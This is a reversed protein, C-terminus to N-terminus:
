GSKQLASNGDADLEALAQDLAELRAAVTVRERLLRQRLADRRERLKAASSIVDLRIARINNREPGHALEPSRLPSSPTVGRARLAEITCYRSKHEALWKEVTNRNVGHTVAAERISMGQEVASALVALRKDPKHLM